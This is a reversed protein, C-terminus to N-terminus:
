RAGRAHRLLWLIHADAPLRGPGLGRAAGAARAAARRAAAAAGAASARSAHPPANAPSAPGHRARARGRAGGASCLSRPVNCSAMLTATVAARHAVPHWWGRLRARRDASGFGPMLSAHVAAPEHRMGQWGRCLGVGSAQTGGEYRDRGAPDDCDSSDSPSDCKAGGPPRWEWGAACAGAAQREFAPRGYCASDEAELGPLQPVVAPALAGSRNRLPVAPAAAGSAAACGARAGSGGTDSEFSSRLRLSTSDSANASGSAGSINPQALPM